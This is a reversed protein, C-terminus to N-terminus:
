DDGKRTINFQQIMLSTFVHQKVFEKELAFTEPITLNIIEYLRDESYANHIISIVVGRCMMNVKFLTTETTYEELNFPLVHWDTGKIKYFIFAGIHRLKVDCDQLPLDNIENLEFNNSFYTKELLTELRNM